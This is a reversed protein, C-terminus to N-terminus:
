RTTLPKKGILYVVQFRRIEDLTPKYNDSNFKVRREYEARSVYIGQVKDFVYSKAIRKDHEADVSVLVPKNKAWIFKERIFEVILLTFRKFM